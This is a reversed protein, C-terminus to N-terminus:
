IVSLLKVARKDLSLVKIKGYQEFKLLNNKLLGQIEMYTPMYSFGIDESIKKIYGKKENMFYWLIESRLNCGIISRLALKKNKKLIYERKYLLEPRKQQERCYYGWNKATNTSNEKTLKIATKMKNFGTFFLEKKKAPTCKKLLNSLSADNVKYNAIEVMFGLISTDIEILRKMLRQINILDHNKSIWTTVGTFLRPDERLFPISEIITKEIDVNGKHPIGCFGYGLKLWKSYLIDLNTM